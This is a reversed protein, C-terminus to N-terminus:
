LDRDKGLKIALSQLDSLFSPAIPGVTIDLLPHRRPGRPRSFGHGLGPVITAECDSKGAKICSGVANMAERPRTLLDLEGTFIHVSGHVAATKTYISGRSFVGNSYFDSDRLLDYLQTNQPDARLQDEIDQYTLASQQGFDWNFTVGDLSLPGPWAGAEAKSILGDHDRDVDSAFFYELPRRYLQWEITTRIDEGSYGLLILGCVAGDERAYDVAVQTGQSHGLIYVREPDVNPQMRLFKVGAALNDVLGQWHLHMYLQEDYYRASPEWSSFYEIGPKGLTLVNWGAEIFPQALQSLLAHDIGDETISGPVM